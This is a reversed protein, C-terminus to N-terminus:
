VRRAGPDPRGADQGSELRRGRRVAARRADEALTGVVNHLRVRAAPHAPWHAGGVRDGTDRAAEQSAAQDAAAQRSPWRMSAEHSVAFQPEVLARPDGPANEIM